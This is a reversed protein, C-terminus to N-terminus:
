VCRDCKGCQYLTDKRGAKGTTPDKLQQSCVVCKRQKRAKGDPVPVREPFHRETLRAIKASSIQENGSFVQPLTQVLETAVLKMFDRTTVKKNNIKNYIICSNASMMLIIQFALKRWWKFTKHDFASYSLRQDILDVGAKNKNYDIVAFPKM